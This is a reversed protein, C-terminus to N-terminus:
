YHDEPRSEDDDADADDEAAGAVAAPEFEDDLEQMGALEDGDAASARTDTVLDDDAEGFGEDDIGRESLLSEKAYPRFEDRRANRSIPFSSKRSNDPAQFIERVILEIREQLDDRLLHAGLQFYVLYSALGVMTLLLVVPVVAIFLYAVVLRNRLSWLLHTRVWPLLRVLLYGAALISLFGLLGSGPVSGLRLVVVRALIYLLVVVLAARDLLTLRRWSARVRHFSLRVM